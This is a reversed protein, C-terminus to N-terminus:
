KFPTKVAIDYLKNKYDLAIYKINIGFLESMENEYLFANPFVASISEIEEDEKLSIKYNYFEYGNVFSYLLDFGGETRVSCIQCLRAGNGKMELAKLTLDVPTIVDLIYNERM